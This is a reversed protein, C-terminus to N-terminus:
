GVMGAGVGVYVVGAKEAESGDLVRGFDVVALPKGEPRKFDSLSLEKFRSHPTAIVVCDVESIARHINATAEFGMSRIEEATFYPDHVIVRAGKKMLSEALMLSYSNRVDKVDPKFGLGLILIRSRWLRKGLRRLAKAVLSLDHKLLRENVRLATKLMYLSFKVDEASAQLLHMDKPLHGGVGVSPRLLHCHPQTNCAELVEMYDINMRECLMALEQSLVLTAFRYYNEFLKVAEATRIDRVPVVGGKVVFSLVAKAAELSRSGAAGVIRPYHVLDRLLSGASGRLPSYAFGFDEEAKLGSLSELIKQVVGETVGLGTTSSQLVLQGRKLILGLDESVKRLATYDPLGQPDVSASVVVIVIDSDGVANRFDTTPQFKNSSLVRKLLSKLGPEPYACVGRKLDEIYKVDVDVGYVQAGADAYLCALPLGMVGCGIVALKLNGNHLLNPIERPDLDLMNVM